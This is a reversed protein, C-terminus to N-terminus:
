AVRPLRAADLVLRVVADLTASRAREQAANWAEPPLNPSLDALTGQARQATWKDALPHHSVFVLLEAARERDCQERAALVAGIEASIELALPHAGIEHALELGEYLCRAAAPYQMLGRYAAGLNSLCNAVHYRDGIERQIALGQRLYEVAVAHEGDLHALYGLNNLLVGTGWLDDIQRRLSLCREYHARAEDLCGSGAAVNGLDNLAGAQGYADGLERYLSLAQGLLDQAEEAQGASGRLLGLIGLAHATGPTDGCARYLDLAQQASQRADDGAGEGRLVASLALHALAEERQLDEEAVAERLSACLALSEGLQAKAQEYLGL